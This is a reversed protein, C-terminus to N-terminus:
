LKGTNPITRRSYYETSTTLTKQPVYIVFGKPLKRKLVYRKNLDLNLKLFEAKSIKFKRLLSRVTRRKKLKYKAILLPKNEKLTNQSFIKEKYMEAHLAALFSAYFNSSAFKFAGGRYKSILSELTTTRSKRLSKKVGSAGHNYATVALPWNKLVKFNHKLLKGAVYTAKLPSNREDIYKNVTAYIKGTRPMIQWIGSAGVKSRASTNFSSEVFPIRLLEKPLNKKSFVDEMIPLYKKSRYIADIFFEKQGLQSRINKLAYKLNRKIPGRIKKIKNYVSKDLPRLNHYHKRKILRKLSSKIRNLRQRVIKKEKHYKTWRHLHSPILNKTDVVDFVIWPYRKHHIVHQKNTYKTYVDLWFGVRRKMLPSVKFENRILNSPDDLAHHFDKFLHEKPINLDDNTKSDNGSVFLHAKSVKSKQISSDLNSVQNKSLYNIAFNAFFYFSGFSLGIVVGLTLLRLINNITFKMIM